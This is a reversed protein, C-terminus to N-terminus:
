NLKFNFIWDDFLEQAEGFNMHFQRGEQWVFVMIYNAYPFGIKIPKM